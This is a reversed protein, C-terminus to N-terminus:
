ITWQDHIIGILKYENNYLEFVLRLSKWDMGEYEPDFGPFHYEIFDADSYVKKLNNLSNGSGIIENKKIKPANVFDASYVFEEFYQSMIMTIFLGSGDYSGWNRSKNELLEFPKMVVDTKTNVTAYPSFRVGKEPHILDALTEFDQNKLANITQNATEDFNPPTAQSCASLFLVFVVALLLIKKM